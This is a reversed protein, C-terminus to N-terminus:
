TGRTGCLFQDTTPAYQPWRIAESFASVSVSHRCSNTPRRPPDPLIILSSGLVHLLKLLKYGLHFEEINRVFRAVLAVKSSLHTVGYHIKRLGWHPYLIEEVIALFIEAFKDPSMPPHARPRVIEADHALSSRKEETIKSSRRM